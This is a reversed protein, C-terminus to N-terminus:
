RMLYARSILRRAELWRGRSGIALPIAVAHLQRQFPQGVVLRLVQDARIGDPQVQPGGTDGDHRMLALGTERDETFCELRVRLGDTAQLALHLPLPSNGVRLVVIRLAADLLAALLLQDPFAAPAILFGPLAFRGSFALQRSMTLAQMPALDMLDHRHPVGDQKFLNGVLRPLFAIPSAYPKSGWPHKYVSESAGHCTRAAGQGFNGCAAGPEGLPTMAAALRHFLRERLAPVGTGTSYSRHLAVQVRGKQSGIKIWCFEDGRTGLVDNGPFTRFRAQPCCVLSDVLARIFPM